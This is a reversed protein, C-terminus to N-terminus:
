VYRESYLLAGDLGSPAGNVSRVEGCVFPRRVLLAGEGDGRGALESRM